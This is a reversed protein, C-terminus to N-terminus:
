RYADLSESIKDNETQDPRGSKFAHGEAGLAFDSGSKAFGYNVPVSPYSAWPIEADLLNDSDLPLLVLTLLM